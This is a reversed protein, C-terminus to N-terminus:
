LYIFKLLFCFSDNISIQRRTRRRIARPAFFLFNMGKNSFNDSSIRIHRDTFSLQGILGGKYQELQVHFLTSKTLGRSVTASLSLWECEWFHQTLKM